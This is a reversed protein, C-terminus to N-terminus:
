KASALAEAMRRRFHNAFVQGARDLATMEFNIRRSYSPMSATFNVIKVAKRGERRYIGPSLGAGPRPVFYQARGKARSRKSSAATSNSRVDRQAKIGSLVQNREGASWNGYADRRAAGTPVAAAFPGTIAVKASLLGELGTQPRAGGTNQVKLFHRRGVSPRERISAQLTRKDARWVMFANLAWPTPRDFVAREEDQMAALGDYATDNMARSMAFPLQSSTVERLAKSVAAINSGIVLDM